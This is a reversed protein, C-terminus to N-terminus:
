PGAIERIELSSGPGLVGPCAKAVELAHEFSDAAVVMFGGIIEKAEIFPGDTVGSVTAIRGGPKLKAGMDVIHDKFKDKWANFAAYMEADARAVAPRAESARKEPHGHIKSDACFDGKSDRNARPGCVRSARAGAYQVSTRLKEARSGDPILARV